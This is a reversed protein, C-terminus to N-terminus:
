HGLDVIKAGASAGFPSGRARGQPYDNPKTMELECLCVVESNALHFGFRPTDGGSQSCCRQKAHLGALYTTPLNRAIAAAVFLEVSASAM